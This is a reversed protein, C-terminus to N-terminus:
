VIKLVGNDNWLDGSVLGSSSVPIGSFNVKEGVFLNKRIRAGASSRIDGDGGEVAKLKVYCAEFSSSFWVFGDVFLCGGAFGESPTSSRTKGAIFSNVPLTADIIHISNDLTDIKILERSRFPPMYIFRGDSTSGFNWQYTNTLSLDQSGWLGSSIDFWVIKEYGFPTFWIRGNVNSAGHFYGYSMNSFASLSHLSTSIITGTEEDIRVLRKSCRPHLFITGDGNDSGGLFSRNSAGKGFNFDGSNPEVLNFITLAGTEINIRPLDEKSHTVLWIYKRTAIIGNYADNLSPNVLWDQVISFTNMDVKVLHTTWSPCLWIFRGGHTSVIGNFKDRHNSGSVPIARVYDSMDIEVTEKTIRNYCVASHHDQPAQVLWDGAVCLGHFAEGTSTSLDVGANIYEYDEAAIPQTDCPVVGSGWGDTASGINADIRPVSVGEYNVVGVTNNVNENTVNETNNTIYENYVDGFQQDYEEWLGSVAEFKEIVFEGESNVFRRFRNIGAEDKFYLADRGFNDVESFDVEYVAAEKLTKNNWKLVDSPLLINEYISLRRISGLAPRNFDGSNDMNGLIVDNTSNVPTIVAAGTQLTLLSGNLYMDVSGSADVIFAVKIWSGVISPDLEDSIVNVSSGGKITLVPTVGDFSSLQVSFGGVAPNFGIGNSFFRGNLAINEINIEALLTLGALANINQSTEIRQTGTFRFANESGIYEANIESLGKKEGNVSFSVEGDVLNENKLVVSSAVFEKKNNEDLEKVHTYVAAGSPSTAFDTSRVINEVLRKDQVWVGGFVTWYGNKLSDVDNVVKSSVGESPVPDVAQLLDYTQYSIVGEFAKLDLEEKLDQTTGIYGGKDTKLEDLIVAEASFKATNVVSLLAFVAEAQTEYIVGDVQIESFGISSLLSQRTDYVNYLGISDSGQILPQYIKLYAIGNLEFYKENVSNILVM